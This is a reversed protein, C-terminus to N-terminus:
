EGRDVAVFAVVRVCMTAAPSVATRMARRYPIENSAKSAALGPKSGRRIRMPWTKFM